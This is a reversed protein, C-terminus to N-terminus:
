GAKALSTNLASQKGSLLLYLCPVIVLSIVTSVLLGSIIALCLPMWFADSLALPTLGVITTVTTALIPRLRDAAGMAAAEQRNRGASFHGNMTDIMVIANNVVIGVLAIIGIMTPFSIPVSGLFFATFVGILALAVSALIILPQRFSDFQIVLLAFVLFLAVGLMTFMDGFTEASEEAEGGIRYQYGDPWGAQLQELKPKLQALIEATTVDQTKAKITVMREAMDHGVVLPSEGIDLDVLSFLPIARGDSAIVQLQVLEAISQPGGSEGERSPWAMGLEIDLDEETGGLDFEGIKDTAMAIRTQQALDNISVKYFDLAERRPLSKIDVTATGM